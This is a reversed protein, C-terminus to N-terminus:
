QPTSAPSPVSAFGVNRLNAQGCLGVVQEIRKEDAGPDARIIVQEDPSTKGLKALLTELADPSISHRDVVLDGDARIIIYETKVPMPLQVIMSQPAPPTPVAQAGSGSPAPAPALRYTYRIDIDGGPPIRRDIFLELHDGVTMVKLDDPSKSVLVAGPPLRHTEIRRTVGDYGPWHDMHYEFENPNATPQILDDTTAETIDTKM